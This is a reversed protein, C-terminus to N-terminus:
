MLWGIVLCLGGAVFMVLMFSYGQTFDTLTQQTREWSEKSSASMSSQHDFSRTGERNGKVGLFGIGIVLIGALQIAQHFEKSSQWGAWWGISAVAFIIVLVVVIVIGLIFLIQTSLSRRKM